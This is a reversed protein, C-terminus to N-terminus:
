IQLENSIGVSDSILCVAENAITFDFSFEFEGIGYANGNMEILYKSTFSFLLPGPRVASRAFLRTTHSLSHAALWLVMMTMLMLKM